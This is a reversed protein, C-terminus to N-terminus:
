IEGKRRWQENEYYYSLQFVFRVPTDWLLSTVPQEPSRGLLQFLTAQSVRLFCQLTIIIM